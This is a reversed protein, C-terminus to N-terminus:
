EGEPKKDVDIWQSPIPRHGENLLQQLRDGQIPIAANCRQYKGWEEKRAGKIGEKVHDECKFYNM